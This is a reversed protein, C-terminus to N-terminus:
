RKLVKRRRRVMNGCRTEARSVPTTSIGTLEEKSVAEIIPGMMRSGTKWRGYWLCDLFPDKWKGENRELIRQGLASTLHCAIILRVGKGLGVLAKKMFVTAVGCYYYESSTKEEM